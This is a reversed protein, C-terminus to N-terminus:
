LHAWRRPSPGGKGPIQEWTWDALNLRWMDNYHRFKEQNPSTFEGGWVWLASRTCVAQHSTRPLPSCHPHTPHPTPTPTPTPTPCM